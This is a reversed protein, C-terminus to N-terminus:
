FAVFSFRLLNNVAWAAAAEQPRYQLILTDGPRINNARAGRVADLSYPTGYRPIVVLKSPGFRAGGVSGGAAAIAQLMSLSRGDKPLTHQGPSLLGGTYYFEDRPSDINIMDGERVPSTLRGFTSGRGRLISIAADKDYAGVQALAAIVSAGDEQISVTSAM